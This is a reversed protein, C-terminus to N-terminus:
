ATLIKRRKFARLGDNVLRLPYIIKWLTSGHISKLMKRQRYNQKLLSDIYSFMPLEDRLRSLLEQWPTVFEPDEFKLDDRAVKLLLEYAHICWPVVQVASNSRLDEDNYKNHHLNRDIFDNVYRELECTRPNEPIQLGNKVRQLQEHPNEMVLDYSTIIREKGHPGEISPILHMLWQFLGTEIDAGSLNRHSQASALPNRLTIVYHENLNLTAFVSQWFPILRATKPDKFGWYRTSEFRRRLLRVAYERIPQMNEGVLQQQDPMIIGCSLCDLRSYIERNIKQSIEYDEWFGTPNVRQNARALNNGLDVGLAQLGRTIASTGSRAPGLVVFINKSTKEMIFALRAQHTIRCNRDVAEDKVAAVKEKDAVKGAVARGTAGEPRATVPLVVSPNSM